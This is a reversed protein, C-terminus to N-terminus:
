LWGNRQALASAEARTRTGTKGIAFSEIPASRLAAPARRGPSARRALRGSWAVDRRPPVRFAWATPCGALGAALATLVVVTASVPQTVSGTRVSLNVGLLRTELFSLAVAGATAATNRSLSIRTSPVSTTTM